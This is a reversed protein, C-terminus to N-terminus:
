AGAEPYDLNAMSAPKAETLGNREPHDTCAIPLQMAVAYLQEHGDCKQVESLTPM